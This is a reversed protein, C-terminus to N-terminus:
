KKPFNSFPFPKEETQYTVYNIIQVMYRRFGMGVKSLNKNPENTVLHFLFQLVAFLCLLLAAWYYVVCFVIVILIRIWKSQQVVNEKLEDTDISSDNIGKEKKVM